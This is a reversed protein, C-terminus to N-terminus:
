TTAANSELCTHLLVSANCMVVVLLLLPLLLQAKGRGPDEEEAPAASAVCRRLLSIGSTGSSQHYSTPRLLALM